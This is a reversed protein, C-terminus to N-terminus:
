SKLIILETCLKNHVDINPASRNWIKNRLILKNFRILYVTYHLSNRLQITLMMHRRVDLSSLFLIWAWSGFWPYHLMLPMSFNSSTFPRQRGTPVVVSDCVCHLLARVELKWLASQPLPLMLPNQSELASIPGGEAGLLKWVWSVTFRLVADVVTQLLAGIHALPNCCCVKQEV